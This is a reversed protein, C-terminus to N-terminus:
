TAKAKRNKKLRSGRSVRGPGIGDFVKSLVKVVEANTVFTFDDGSPVRLQREFLDIIKGFGPVIQGAPIDAPNIKGMKRTLKRMTKQMAERSDALSELTELTKHKEM